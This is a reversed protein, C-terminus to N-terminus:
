AMAQPVHAPLPRVSAVHSYLCVYRALNMTFDAHSWCCLSTGPPWEEGVHQLIALPQSLCNPCSRQLRAFPQPRSLASQPCMTILVPLVEVERAAAPVHRRVMTDRTSLGSAPGAALGAAPM